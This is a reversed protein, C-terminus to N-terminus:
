VETKKAVIEKAEHEELLMAEKTEKSEEGEKSIFLIKAMKTLSSAVNSAYLTDNMLSTAMTNTIKKDRILSDISRGSVADYKKSDVSLKGFLLIAVDTEDTNIIMHLYRLQKLLNQRIYNYESRIYENSSEIYKLMNPQLQMADKIAEALLLNARRIDMLKTISEKPAEAQARVAFDIIKSYIIKIKREYLDEIDKELPKTRMNIIDDINTGSVVDGPRISIAYAILDQANKYFHKTEKLLVEKAAEPFTIASENIFEVDDTGMEKTKTTKIFRNLFDVLKNTFPVMLIVGTINFFTHFLALKLTYDDHKIGLIMASEEVVFIFQHILVIAVFGTVLNFILHAGALKKGELNSSLSGIIATITTGVNSGIALALANEYTIQNAALATIILVLTAHSSQMVVTAAIGIGTYILLGKFGDIAFTSLDITDKVAEFGEKMYHIGLFLFGLGALIYGLGQMNKDKKFSLIVGFVLMPMAYASIKVKLGFGAVLWAGTTTGINAGFIIGIGAALGILGASLFSITIVSVLSSSQMLTTAVVGFGLSKYLKDTAHQLFNELLGGTFSKFGNELSQMGFLFIAVGACIQLFHDDLSFLYGLVGM